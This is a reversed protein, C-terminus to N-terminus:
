RSWELALGTLAEINLRYCCQQSVADMYAKDFYHSNSFRRQAWDSFAQTEIDEVASVQGALLAFHLTQDNFFQKIIIAESRKGSIRKAILLPHLDILLLQQGQWHIYSQSSQTTSVAIIAEVNDSALLLSFADCRIFLYAQKDLM